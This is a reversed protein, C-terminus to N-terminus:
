PWGFAGSGGPRPAPDNKAEGVEFNSIKGNSANVFCNVWYPLAARAGSPKTMELQFFIKFQNTAHDYRSSHDDDILRQMRSAYRERTYNKCELYADTFTVHKFGPGADGGSGGFLLDSFYLTTAASAAVIALALIIVLTKQKGTINKKSKAM